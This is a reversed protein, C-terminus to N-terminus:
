VTVKKFVIKSGQLVYVGSQGNVVRLASIPVRCGTYYERVIQVTQHRLYNFSAPLTGTEFVLVATKSGAESLIRYLKMTIATDNNYPFRISYNKGTEYNHLEAVDVECAVYWLYDTVLKGVPYGKENPKIDEAQRSAIDLYERYTM